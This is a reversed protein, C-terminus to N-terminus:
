DPAGLEEDLVKAYVGAATEPVLRNAMDYTDRAAQSAASAEILPRIRQLEVAFRVLWVAKEIQGM